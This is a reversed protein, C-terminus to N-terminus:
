LEIRLVGGYSTMSLSESLATAAGAVKEEAFSVSEFRAGLAVRSTISYTLEASFGSVKGYSIERGSSDANALTYDGIFQYDGRLEMRRLFRIGLFPAFPTWRSGGRNGTTDTDSYQVIYSYSTRAGLRIFRLINLGVSFSASYSGMFASPEVSGSQTKGLNGGAAFGVFLRRAHASSPYLVTAAVLTLICSLKKFAAM